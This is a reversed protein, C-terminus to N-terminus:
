GKKNAWLGHMTCYCRVKVNTERLPFEGEPPEDPKLMRLLALPGNRVEIWEIFHRDEMPHPISGIRVRIGHETREVVPVHKEKGAEKHQEVLLRMPKQCCVLDGRGVAMLNVMNGCIDCRYVQFRQTM